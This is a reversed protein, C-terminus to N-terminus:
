YEGIVNVTIILIAVKLNQFTECLYVGEDQYTINIIKLSGNALSISLRSDLATPNQSNLLIFGDKKWQYNIKINNTAKTYDIPWTSCPLEVHSGKVFRRNLQGTNTFRFLEAFLISFCNITAFTKTIQNFM